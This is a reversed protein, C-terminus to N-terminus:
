NTKKEKADPKDEMKIGYEKELFQEFIDLDVIATKRMDYNAGAKRVLRVFPYFDMGYYRSATYHTEFRHRKGEELYRELNPGRYKKKAM